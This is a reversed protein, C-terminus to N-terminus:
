LKFKDIEASLRTAQKMLEEVARGAKGITDVNQEVVAKIRAVAKLIHAGEEAQQGTTQAIEKVQRSVREVIENIQKNGISQEQTANKVKSAVDKMKETSSIILESGKFQEHTAHAIQQVMDTVHQMSDAVHKVGLTQEETARAIEQIRDTSQKSSELIKELASGAEGALHVGEAVSKTGRSIALVANKSEDQLARIIEHIENTSTATRDALEKIEQAVVAFSRGHEGAQAAIIAANLALLNTQEAVEDIVNLIKGISETRTKLNQIVANVQQSYEQIRGIGQITMETARRGREADETVGKSLQVTDMVNSRIQKISMDMESMAAATDEAAKNLSVVSEDVQKVSSSMELISATSDEVGSSLVAASRAIEDISSSMQLIAIATEEALASLAEANAAVRHISANVAEVAGATTEVSQMQIKSGEEIQQTGILVEQSVTKVQKSTRSVQAIIRHLTEIFKNFWRAVDGIEDQYNVAIRATLDGEGEAIDKVCGVVNNVPTLVVRRMLFRLFAILVAVTTLSALFLYWQSQKLAANMGELSTSIMLVGRLRHEAGHCLACKPFNPLPRLYTMVSVGDIEESYVADLLGRKLADEQTGALATDSLVRVTQDLYNRFEPNDTGSATNMKLDPHDREWEPKYLTSIRKKVDDLTKFDMFAKDRGRGEGVYAADGRVIQIRKIGELKKLDEMLFRVVDARFAMMDRDLTEHITDAVLKSKEREDGIFNKREKSSMIFFIGTFSIILVILILSLIKYELRRVIFDFLSRM